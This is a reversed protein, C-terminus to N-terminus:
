STLRPPRAGNALDAFDVVQVQGLCQLHLTHGDANWVIHRDQPGALRGGDLPAIVAAVRHALTDLLLVDQNCGVMAVIHGMKPWPSPNIAEVRRARTVDNIDISHRAGSEGDCYTALGDSFSLNPLCSPVKPPQGREGESRIEQWTQTEFDMRGRRSQLTCRDGNPSWEAVDFRTPMDGLCPVEPYAYTDGERPHLRLIEIRDGNYYSLHRGDPSFSPRAVRAMAHPAAFNNGLRYLEGPYNSRGASRDVLLHAGDPSWCVFREHWQAAAVEAGLVQRGSGVEILGLREGAGLAALWRGDPSFQAITCAAPLDRSDAGELAAYFTSLSHSFVVNMRETDYIQARREETSYAFVLHPQSDSWVLSDCAGLAPLARRERGDLTALSVNGDAGLCAGWTAYANSIPLQAGPLANAALGRGETLNARAQQARQLSRQVARGDWAAPVPAGRLPAAAAQWVDASDDDILARLATCTGRVAALERGALRPLLHVRLPDILPDLDLPSADRPPSLPQPSSILM